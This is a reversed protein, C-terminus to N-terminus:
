FTIVAFIYGCDIGATKNHAIWSHEGCTGGAELLAKVDVLDRVEGWPSRNSRCERSGARRSIRMATM